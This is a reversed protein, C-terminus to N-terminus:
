MDEDDTEDHADLFNSIAVDLEPDTGQMEKLVSTDDIFEMLLDVYHEAATETHNKEMYGKSMLWIEVYLEYNMM